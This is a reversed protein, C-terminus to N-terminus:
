YINWLLENDTAIRLITFIGPMISQNSFRQLEINLIISLSIRLNMTKNINYKWSNEIILLWEFSMKLKVFCSLKKCIM